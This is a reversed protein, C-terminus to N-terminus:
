IGVAGGLKPRKPVVVRMVGLTPSPIRPQNRPPCASGTRPSLLSSLSSLRPSDLPLPPSISRNSPSRLMHRSSASIPSLLPSASHLRPSSDPSPLRSIAVAGAQLPPLNRELRKPMEWRQLPPADFRQGGRQLRLSRQWRRESREQRRRELEQRVEFAKAAKSIRENTQQVIDVRRDIVYEEESTHGCRSSEKASKLVVQKAAPRETPHDLWKELEVIDIHTAQRDHKGQIAKFAEEVVGHVDEKWLQLHNPNFSSPKFLEQISKCFETRNLALDGSRDWSKMLDAPGISNRVLLQQVLIRLTEVDWRIQDFTCKM